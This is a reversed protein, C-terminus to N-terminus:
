GKPIVEGGYKVRLTMAVSVPSGGLDDVGWM